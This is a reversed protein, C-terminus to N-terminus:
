RGASRAIRAPSLRSSGRSRHREKRTVGSVSSRHCRSAALCLHRRHRFRRPGPRGGILSSSTPSMTPRPRSFRIQPHTRMWPSSRFSPIQTDAVDILRTRRRAPRPGAGRPPRVQASNRRGWACLTSAVSKKVTSVTDQLLEVPEEDDFQRSALYVDETDSVMRGAGEDGLYSSVEDLIQGVTTSGELEQDPVPVGLERGAEVLHEAGLADPHDPRWDSGRPGIGVGLAPHSGHPCLTQVPHEDQAPSVEFPYESLIGAVVVSLSGV